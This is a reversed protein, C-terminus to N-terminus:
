THTHTKNNNTGSMTQASTAAFTALAINSLQEHMRDPLFISFRQTISPHTFLTYCICKVCLYEIIQDYYSVIPLRWLGTFGICNAFNLKNAPRRGFLSLAFPINIDFKFNTIEFM